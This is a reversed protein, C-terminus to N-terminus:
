EGVRPEGRELRRLQAGGHGPRHHEVGVAGHELARRLVAHADRDGEVADRRPHQLRRDGGLVAAEELVGAHVRDRDCAGRQAGAVLAGASGRDGLLERPPKVEGVRALREGQALEVLGRERQLELRVARLALQEREVQVVDVVAAPRVADLGRRAQVEADARRVEVEGM